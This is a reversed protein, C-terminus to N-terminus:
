GKDDIKIIFSIRFMSSTNDINPIFAKSIRDKDDFFGKKRLSTILNQFSTQKEIGLKERLSNKVKTSMLFENLLEDDLIKESYDIYKDLFGAALEMEAQSLGHLERTLRLWQLCVEDRSCSLKAINTNTKQSM